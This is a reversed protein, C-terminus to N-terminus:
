GVLFELWALSRAQWSWMREVKKRIKGGVAGMQKRNAQLGTLLEAIADVSREVLFGDEGHTILDTSGGVRTSIVVRGSAAAELVAISFGESSSACVYVDYTNHWAPMDAPQVHQDSRAKAEVLVAGVKECAPRIFESVGKRTDHKPTYACGVRLPGDVSLPAMPKFQDTDVGNPTLFLNLGKGSFLNYLRWSVCNVGRFRKLTRIMEWSPPADHDPTTELNPDFAHHSHIGTYWRESDISAYFPLLELQQWGMLLVRDYFKQMRQFEDVRGKMPLIDFSHKPDTNAAKLALAISHYSWDAKDPVLLIKM